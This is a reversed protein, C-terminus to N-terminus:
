KNSSEEIIQAIQSYGQQSNYGSFKGGRRWIDDTITSNNISNTFRYNISNPAKELLSALLKHIPYIGLGKTLSYERSDFAKTWKSYVIAWAQSIISYITKLEINYEESNRYISKYDVENVKLYSIIFPDLSRKFTNVGVPKGKMSEEAMKIKNYWVSDNTDNLMKIVSISISEIFDKRDEFNMNNQRRIKERLELALDTKVPKGKKNINVFTSIETIRDNPYEKIEMLVFPFSINCIREFDYIHNNKLFVLAERRHQGDVIRVKGNINIVGDEINLNEFDIAGIIASPLVSYPDNQIYRAIRRYHTPVLKRQYGDFTKHDYYEVKTQNILDSCSISTVYMNLGNQEILNFNKIKM